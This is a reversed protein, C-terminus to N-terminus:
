EPDDFFSEESAQSATFDINLARTRREMLSQQALVENLEAIMAKAGKANPRFVLNPGQVGFMSVEGGDTLHIIGVNPM